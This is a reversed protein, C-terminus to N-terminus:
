LKSQIRFFADDVTCLCPVIKIIARGIFFDTSIVYHSVVHVVACRHILIGAKLIDRVTIHAILKDKRSVFHLSFPVGTGHAPKSCFVLISSFQFGISCFASCGPCVLGATIILVRVAFSILHDFALSVHCWGLDVRVGEGSASRKGGGYLHENRIISKLDYRLEIQPKIM